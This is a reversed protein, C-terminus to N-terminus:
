RNSCGKREKASLQLRMERFPHELRPFSRQLLRPLLALSFIGQDHFEAQSALEHKRERTALQVWEDAHDASQRFQLRFFKSEKLDEELRHLMRPGLADRARDCVGVARWEEHVHGLQRFSRVILNLPWKKGGHYAHDDSGAGIFARQLKGTLEGTGQAHKGPRLPVFEDRKLVGIVRKLIM